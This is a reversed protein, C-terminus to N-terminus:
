KIGLLNTWSAMGCCGDVSLGNDKQYNKLANCTDSGFKSDAGAKGCSYGRGILLIQLAKVAEGESDIALEPLEIKVPEKIAKFYRAIVEAEAKALRDLNSDEM